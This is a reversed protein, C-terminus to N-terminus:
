KLSKRKKSTVYIGGSLALLMMGALLITDTTDGTAPKTTGKVMTTSDVDKPTDTESPENSEVIQEVKGNEKLYMCQAQLAQYQEYEGLTFMGKENLAEAYAITTQFFAYAEPQYDVARLKSFTTIFNQLEALRDENAILRIDTYADSLAKTATDIAEQSEANQMVDLAVDYASLFREWAENQQYYSENAIVDESKQIMYSLLTKDLQGSILKLNNKATLLADYTKTITVDLVDDSELVDNAKQLAKQFAEKGDEEYRSLDIASCEEVLNTLLTKDATFDLYHMADALQKWANMLETSTATENMLVTVAYDLSANFNAVVKDALGLTLGKDKIDVAKSVAARLINRQIATDDEGVPVLKSIATMITDQAVRIQESTGDVLLAKAVDIADKLVAYSDATYDSAVKEEADSIAYVLDDVNVLEAIASTLQAAFAGVAEDSADDNNLLDIANDLIENMKNFSVETYSDSNFTQALVVVNRLAGKNDVKHINIEAGSGFGGAGATAILRVYQAKVADFKTTKLTANQAWTGGSVVTKWTSGDNSVELNYSTITGNGGNSRPLYDFQNINYAKDMKITISQPLADKSPSYKTHWITSENDDILNKAPGESGSASQESTTSISMKSHSVITPDDNKAVTNYVKVEDILGVFAHEKSGIRELPLVLSAYKNGTGSKSLEDVKEGNVYLTSKGMTNKLTIQVWEDNPLTYNFSYDRLDRSFGFKGTEKQVAKIAGMESEFLIQEEADSAGDKKVWFELTNNIGLDSLPTEVYSADGHLTLAYQTKGKEYTVNASDIADYANGSKDVTSKNNFNYDLVKETKSDVQYVPNSNPAYSTKEAVENIETTTEYDNVDGWLKAGFTPTIAFIRDFIEVDSIGVDLDKTATDNWVAFAAGLMQKSGVPIEFGNEIINPEWTNMIHNQNLYDNYYGAGPVIYLDGDSMNICDYGKEYMEKPNAYGPYWLNMQVGEVTIPTTGSNETQSGWLRPTRGKEDRMYKLLADQYARFAEKNGNKYEDTGINVITAEDFVPDEGDLYENYVDKVFSLADSNTVDLYQHNDSRAIDPRARTFAAAHGPTDFEPVINVGMLRSTKIFDRFDDKSYSIDDSTLNPFKSELRFGAYYPDKSGPMNSLSNDNLHVQFDNLKYWSMTKVVDELFSLPIAKRGVDLQMGRVSYKPYDKAIGQPISGGTQKIIQLISRTGWYAGTAESAKITVIDAVDMYYTESDLTTENLTFYFDGASPNTGEVVSIDKKTIDKYDKAFENAIALFGSTPDVVITSTDSITFDGSGGLWEQLEPIVTPKANKDPDVRFLGPIKVVIDPSTASTKDDSVKFNVVVDTDTLPKTINMDHDVIQEYDAGIFTLEMDEKMEPMTLKTDDNGVEPVILENAVEAPTKVDDEPADINYEYAEFEYISVTEWTVDKGASTPATPVFDRILVRLYKATIASPFNVKQTFDYPVKKFARIKTWEQGDNSYQLEYDTTNCREWEIVASAIKTPEAFELQLWKENIGVTSAWRSQKANTAEDRNAIGDNAKSAPFYTEDESGNAKATANLAVNETHVSGIIQFEYLSVSNYASAILKDVTLKVYRGSVATDLKVTTDLDYGTAKEAPAYASTYTKDDDSVEIHFKAVLQKSDEFAIKFEDFTQVAGLDVKLWGPAGAESSWRSQQPKSADRNIIGDVTKAPTWGYPDGSNSSATVTKNLAFNIRAVESEDAANIRTFADLSICTFIMAFALLSYVIKHLGKKM